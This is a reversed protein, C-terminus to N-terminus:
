PTKTDIDLFKALSEPCLPHSYLWGQAIPNKRKNIIYAAQEESEIGEFVVDKDLQNLFTIIADLTNQNLSGSGISQTFFRDVKIEDAQLSAIANLNAYGTGFDDISIRCGLERYLNIWHRVTCFEHTTRETIEIVVTKQQLQYRQMLRKVENYVRVDVIDEMTLNVSVSFDPRARIIPVLAHFTKRLISLTLDVIYGHQEAVAIFEAPSVQGLKDDHWRALAEVGVCRGSEMELKPQFVVHLSGNEIAKKLRYPLTNSKVWHYHFQKCIVYSTLLSFVIVLAFISLPVGYLGAEHRITHICYRADSRCTSAEIISLPHRTDIMMKNQTYRFAEWYLYTHQSDYTTVTIADLAEEVYYDNYIDHSIVLLTDENAVAATPQTTFRTIPLARWFQSRSLTFDPPSLPIPTDLVGWNASCLITNNQVRGINKLTKSRSVIIRLRRLDQKTCKKDDNIPRLHQTIEDRIQQTANDVYALADRMKATQFNVLLVHSAVILLTALCAIAVCFFLFYRRKTFQHVAKDDM